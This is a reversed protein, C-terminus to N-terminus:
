EKKLLRQALGGLKEWGYAAVFAALVGRVLGGCLLQWTIGDGGTGEGLAMALSFILGEALAQLDTPIRKMCPLNKTLETVVAVLFALLGVASIAEAAFQGSM